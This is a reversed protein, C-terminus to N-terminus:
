SEVGLKNHTHDRVQGWIESLEKNSMGGRMVSREPKPLEPQKPTQSQTIITSKTPTDSVVKQNSLLSLVLSPNEKALERLKEPTTQLESARRNVVERAKDGYENTLADFVTKVNNFQSDETQKSQLLSSVIDKISNEDLVNKSPDTMDPDKPPNSNTFRAIVDEVSARKDVEAKAADREQEVAHKEQKLTEIFQQSHALAQLADDVTKYKPEGNENKISSLKDAFPDNSRPTPDSSKFLDDDNNNTM